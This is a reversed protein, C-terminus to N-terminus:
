LGYFDFGSKNQTIQRPTYVHSEIKSQKIAQKAFSDRSNIPRVWDILIKGQKLASASDRNWINNAGLRSDTNQLLQYDMMRQNGSNLSEHRMASFSTDVNSADMNSGVPGGVIGGSRRARQNENSNRTFGQSTTRGPNMPRIEFNRNALASTPIKSGLLHDQKRVGGRVAQIPMCPACSGVSSTGCGFNTGRVKCPAEGVSSNRDRYFQNNNLDQGIMGFAQARESNTHIQRNFEDFRNYNGIQENQQHIRQIRKPNHNYNTPGRFMHDKPTIDRNYMLLTERSSEKM